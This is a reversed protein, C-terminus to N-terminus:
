EIIVELEGQIAEKLYKPIPWKEKLDRFDINSPTVPDKRPDYSIISTQYFDADWNDIINRLLTYVEAEYDAEEISSFRTYYDPQARWFIMMVTGKDCLSSNIIWSLVESGDDWNYNAAILHYEVPNTITNFVARDPKRNEFSFEFFHEQLLSIRDESVTYDM